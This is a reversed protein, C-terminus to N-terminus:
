TPFYVGTLAGHLVHVEQNCICAREITITFNKESWGEYNNIIFIQFIIEVYKQYSCEGKEVMPMEMYHHDRPHHSGGHLFVSFFSASSSSEWIMIISAADWLGMTGLVGSCAKKKENLHLKRKHCNEHYMICTLHSTEYHNIMQNRFYESNLFDCNLVIM